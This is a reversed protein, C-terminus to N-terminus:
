TYFYDVKPSNKKNVKIVSAPTLKPFGIQRTAESIVIASAIAVNLSRCKKSMPIKLTYHCHKQVFGPVGDCERGALIIDSPNFSFEFYPIKAKCDLLILRAGDIHKVFHKFDLHKIISSNNIYNMHSRKFRRDDWIFGCPEIIHLPVNFCASLRILTGTNQPIEPEFLALQVNNSM